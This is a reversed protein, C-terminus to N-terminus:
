LLCRPKRTLLRDRKGNTGVFQPRLTILHCSQYTTLGFSVDEPRYYDVFGMFVAVQSRKLESSKCAANRNLGSYGQCPPGGVIAQVAGKPPMRPDASRRCRKVRTDNTDITDSTICPPAPAPPPAGLLGELLLSADGQVVIADPHNAAFASAAHPDNEIAHTIRFYESQELGASLGGCGAFVDLTALPSRPTMGSRTQNDGGGGDKSSSFDVFAYHLADYSKQCFFRQCNIDPMPTTWNQVDIQDATYETVICEREIDSFGVTEFLETRFVESSCGDLGLITEGGNARLYWRVSLQAVSHQPPSPSSTPESASPKGLPSKPDLLELVHGVRRNRFLFWQGRSATQVSTTTGLSPEAHKGNSLAGSLCRAFIDGTIKTTEATKAEPKGLKTANHMFRSGLFAKECLYQLDLLLACGMEFGASVLQKLLFPAEAVVSQLLAFSFFSKVAL